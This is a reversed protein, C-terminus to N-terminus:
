APAEEMQEDGKDEAPGEGGDSGAGGEGGRFAPRSRDGALLEVAGTGLALAAAGAGFAQAAPAATGGGRLGAGAGANGAGVAAGGGAVATGWWRRGRGGAQRVRPGAALGADGAVVAAGVAFAGAGAQGAGADVPAALSPVAPREAAIPGPLAIGLAHARLGAKGVGVTRLWPLVRGRGLEASFHDAVILDALFRVLRVVGTQRRNKLRTPVALFQLTDVVKGIPDPEARIVAVQIYRVVGAIANFRVAM